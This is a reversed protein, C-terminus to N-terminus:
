FLKAIGIGFGIYNLDVDTSTNGIEPKRSLSRYGMKPRLNWNSGLDIQLGAGIERTADSRVIRGM